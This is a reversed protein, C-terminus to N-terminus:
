LLAGLRPNLETFLGKIIPQGAGWGSSILSKIAM